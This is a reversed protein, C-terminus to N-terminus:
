SLNFELSLNEVLREKSTTKPIIATGRQVGWRLVIQAPSKGHKVAIDKVTSENLCSEEYTAGGLEVYSGAGLNSYATVAIGKTRCFILLKEQALYPHMEVQLVQPKIEAYNLLDRLLLTGINSVGINRVLGEKHLEEMARWTEQYSVNDEEMGPKETYNWGAPYRVEFPVYQLAIPFHILYLDLYDVGLDKLTRLCAARVHEKRHYTNWLKSTVWLEERKVLGAELVKKIGLGVEAENGYDSAGDLLRYGAQVADFVM